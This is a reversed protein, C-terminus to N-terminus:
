NKFSRTEVINAPPRSISEKICAYIMYHDSMGLRIVGGPKVKQPINTTFIGTLSSTDIIVRTPDTMIQELQYIDM